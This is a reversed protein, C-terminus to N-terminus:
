VCGCSWQHLTRNQGTRKIDQMRIENGSSARTRKEQIPPNKQWFTVYIYWFPPGLDLFFFCWLHRDHYGPPTVLSNLTISKWGSDPRIRSLIEPTVALDFPPNLVQIRPPFQLRNSLDPM